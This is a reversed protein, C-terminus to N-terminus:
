NLYFEIIDASFSKFDELDKPNESQGEPQASRSYDVAHSHGKPKPRVSQGQRRMKKEFVGESGCSPGAAAIAGSCVQSAPSRACRGQSGLQGPRAVPAISPVPPRQVTRRSTKRLKKFLRSIFGQENWKKLGNNRSIKRRNEGRL